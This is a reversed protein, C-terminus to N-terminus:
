LAIRVGVYSGLIGADGNTDNFEVCFSGGDDSFVFTVYATYDADGNEPTLVIDLRNGRLTSQGVLARDTSNFYTTNTVAVLNGAQELRITGALLYPEEGGFRFTGQVNISAASNETSCVVKPAAPVCGGAPLVAGVMAMGMWWERVRAKM